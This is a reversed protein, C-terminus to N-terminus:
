IWRFYILTLTLYLLTPSIVQSLFINTDPLVYHGTTFQKHTSDGAAPLVPNVAGACIRCTIIGCYIDDRLYRERIVQLPKLTHRTSSKQRWGKIVKGRSTKKFFKRQTVVAEERPRKLITIHAMTMDRDYKTIARGHYINERYWILVPALLLLLLSM